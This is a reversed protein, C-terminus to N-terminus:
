KITVHPKLVDDLSKVVSSLVYAADQVRMMAMPSHKGELTNFNQIAFERLQILMQVEQKKM